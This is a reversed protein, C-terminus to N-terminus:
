LKETITEVNDEVLLPQQNPNRNTVAYVRVWNAKELIRLHGHDDNGRLAYYM